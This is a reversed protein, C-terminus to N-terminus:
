MKNQANEFMFLHYSGVGKCTSQDSGYCFKHSRRKYSHFSQLMSFTWPQMTLLHHLVTIARRVASTNDGLARSSLETCAFAGSIWDWKLTTFVNANLHSHEVQRAQLVHLWQNHISCIKKQSVFSWKAGMKMCHFSKKRCTLYNLGEDSGILSSSVPM